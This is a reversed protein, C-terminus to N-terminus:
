DFISTQSALIQEVWRDLLSRELVACRGGRSHGHLRDRVTSMRRLIRPRRRTLRVTSHRTLWASLSVADLLWSVSVRGEGIECAM